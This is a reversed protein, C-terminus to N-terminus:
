KRRKERARCEECTGRLEVHVMDVEGFQKVAETPGYGDFRDDRFDRILGCTTCVFHHHPAINADYRTRYGAAGVKQIIGHEELARLNRYITDLSVSPIRRKVRQYVAEADPHEGTKALAAYIQRRQRTAKLGARACQEVFWAGRETAEERPAAVL